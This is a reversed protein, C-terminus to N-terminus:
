DVEDHLGRLYGCYNCDCYGENNHECKDCSGNRIMGYPCNPCDTLEDDRM